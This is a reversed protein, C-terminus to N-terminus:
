NGSGWIVKSKGVNVKVKVENDNVKSKVPHAAEATQIMDPPKPPTPPLPTPRSPIPPPVPAPRVVPPISEKPIQYVPSIPGDLSPSAPPKPLPPLPPAPIIPQTPIIESETKIKTAGQTWYALKIDIGLETRLQAEIPRLMREEIEQAVTLAIHLDVNLDRGIRPILEGPPLKKAVLDIIIDPVIGIAVGKLGLRKNLDIILYTISDSGLWDGIKEPLTDINLIPETTNNPM